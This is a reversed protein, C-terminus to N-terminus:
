RSYTRMPFVPSSSSRATRPERIPAVAGRERAIALFTGDPSYALGMSGPGVPFGLVDEGTRADWIRVEGSSRGRGRRCDFEFHRRPVRRDSPASRLAEFVRSRDKQSTSRSSVVKGPRSGLGKVRLRRTRWTPEDSRLLEASRDLAKAM